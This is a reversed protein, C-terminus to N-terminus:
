SRHPAPCNTEICFGSTGVNGDKRTFLFGIRYPKRAPAFAIQYVTSRGAPLPKKSARNQHVRSLTSKWHRTIKVHM